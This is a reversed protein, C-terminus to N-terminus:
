PIFAVNSVGIVHMEGVVVVVVLLITDQLSIQVSAIREIVFAVHGIVFVDQRSRSAEGVFPCMGVNIAIGEKGGDRRLLIQIQLGIQRTGIDTSRQVHLFCRNIRPLALTWSKGIGLFVISAIMVGVVICWTHNGKILVNDRTEDDRPYEITVRIRANGVLASARSHFAHSKVFQIASGITWPKVILRGSGCLDHHFLSGHKSGVQYQLVHTGLECSLTQGKHGDMSRSVHDRLKTRLRRPVHNLPQDLMTMIFRGGSWTM